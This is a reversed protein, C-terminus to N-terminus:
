FLKLPLKVEKLLQARLAEDTIDNPLNKSRAYDKQARKTLAGAYGDTKEPSGQALKLCLQVNAVRNRKEEMTLGVEAYNLSEIGLKQLDPIDFHWQITLNHPIGEIIHEVKSEKVKGNYYTNYFPQGFFLILVVGNIAIFGKIKSIISGEKIVIQQIYISVPVNEGVLFSAVKLLGSHSQGILPKTVEFNDQLQRQNLIIKQEEFTRRLWPFFQENFDPNIFRKQLIDRTLLVSHSLRMAFTAIQQDFETLLIQHITPNPSFGETLNLELDVEFTLKITEEDFTTSDIRDKVASSDPDM